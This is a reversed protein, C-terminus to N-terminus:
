SHLVELGYTSRLMQHAAALKDTVDDWKAGDVEIRFAYAGSSVQQTLGWTQIGLQGLHPRVGFDIADATTTNGAPVLLTMRSSSLSM